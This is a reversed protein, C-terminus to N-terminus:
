QRIVALVNIPATIEKPAMGVHLASGHTVITCEHQSHVHVYIEQFASCQMSDYKTSNQLAELTPERDPLM